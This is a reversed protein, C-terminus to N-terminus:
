RAPGRVVVPCTALKLLERTVGGLLGGKAQAGIVLAAADRERAVQALTEAVSVEPDDAVTLPEADFGLGRALEAGHSAVDQAGELLARDVELATRVDIPGPPLGISAAPLAVLEFGLGSKWVCVVLAPRPALLDAADRLAQEADPSGDFGIVIPGTAAM